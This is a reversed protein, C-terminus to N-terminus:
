PTAGSRNRRKRRSKNSNLSQKHIVGPLDASVDGGSLRQIKDRRHRYPLTEHRYLYIATTSVGIKLALWADPRGEAWARFADNWTQM